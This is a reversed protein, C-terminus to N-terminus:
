AYGCGNLHLFVFVFVGLLFLLLSLLCPRDELLLFYPDGGAAARGIEIVEFWGLGGCIGVLKLHEILEDPGFLVRDDTTGLRFFLGGLLWGLRLCFLLAWSTAPLAHYLLHLLLPDDLVRLHLADPASEVEEAGVELSVPLVQQSSLCHQAVDAGQDILVLDAAGM